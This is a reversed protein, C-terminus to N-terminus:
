LAEANHADPAAGNGAALAAQAQQQQQQQERRKEYNVLRRGVLYKDNRIHEYLSAIKKIHYEILFFLIGMALLLTHIRRDLLNTLEPSFGLLPCLSNVLLQPLLIALGVKSIVPIALTKFFHALQLNHMDVEQVQIFPSHISLTFGRVLLLSM